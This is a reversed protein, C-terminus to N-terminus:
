FAKTSRKPLLGGDGGRCVNGGFSKEGVSLEGFINGRRVTGRLATGSRVIGWVSMEGQGQVDFSDVGGGVCVVVVVM